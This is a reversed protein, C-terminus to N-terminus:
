PTRPAGARGSKPFSAPFISVGESADHSTSLVVKLFVRLLRSQVSPLTGKM